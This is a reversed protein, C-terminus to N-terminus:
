PSDSWGVRLLRAPEDFRPSPSAKGVGAPVGPITALRNGSQVDGRWAKPSARAAALVLPCGPPAVTGAAYSLEPLPSFSGVISLWPPARTGRAARKRKLPM